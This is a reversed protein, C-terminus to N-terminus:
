EGSLDARMDEWVQLNGTRCRVTTEAQGDWARTDDAPPEADRVQATMVATHSHAASEIDVRGPRAHVFGKGVRGAPYSDPVTSLDADQLRLGYFDIEPELAQEGIPTAQGM